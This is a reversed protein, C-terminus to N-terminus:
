RRWAQQVLNMRDNWSYPVPPHNSSAGPPPEGGEDDGAEGRGDPDERGGLGGARDVRAVLGGEAQEEPIRGDGLDVERGVDGERAGRVRVVRRDPEVARGEEDVLVLM